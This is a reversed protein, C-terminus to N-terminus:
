AMPALSGMARRPSCSRLVVAVGGHERGSEGAKRVVIVDGGAARLEIGRALPEAGFEGLFRAREDGRLGIEDHEVHACVHLGDDVLEARAVYRTPRRNAAM